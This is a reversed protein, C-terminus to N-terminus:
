HMAQAAKVANYANVVGGSASLEGFRVSGSSGGEGPRAVTQSAYNTTTSMLIQKVQAATLTPFYAMLLAAVGSVVPTAMSTGSLRGHANGPLTSYIDVGPAFLDVRSRSYNSFPAALRDLGRWSSAGVEIWDSAQGGSLFVRSPFDPSTDLNSADNGAAHVLLVGKSDAYKVADDVAAKQPSIDKGFSMSIINAGHDAAYRIANAIDKDREDGDPVARLVMIRVAPSGDALQERNGPVGLVIGAVNTGHMPDPGTVDTNGYARQNVDAYNDGVIARPDFDPNLHYALDNKVEAQGRLVEEPSIGAGLMQLYMGRAMTVDNRPSQLKQVNEPTLSDAGLAQRLIATAREVAPALQELQTQESQADARKREVEQKYKRYLAYDARAQGSLTDAKATEFRARLAAYQRTVEYTDQGVDRGGPGGIYDWGRVDGLLGDGDGDSGPTEKPNTWLFGHLDAHATDIGSDIIAVVVSRQPKKGALLETFAREAAIGPVHNQVPDLLWWNQPSTAPAAEAPAQQARGEAAYASALALALAFPTLRWSRHAM